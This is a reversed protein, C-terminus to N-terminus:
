IRKTGNKDNKTAESVQALTIWPNEISGDNSDNGDASIYYNKALVGFPMLFGLLTIIPRLRMKKMM